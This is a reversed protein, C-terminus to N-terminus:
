DCSDLEKQMEEYINEINSIGYNDKALEQNLRRILRDNQSKMEDLHHLTEEGSVYTYIFSGAGLIISIITSITGLTLSLDKDCIGLGISVIILVIGIVMLVTLIKRWSKRM